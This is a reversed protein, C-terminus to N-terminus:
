ENHGRLLQMQQLRMLVASHLLLATAVPLLSYPSASTPKALSALSANRGACVVLQLDVHVGHPQQAASNTVVSARVVHWASSHQGTVARRLSRPTQSACARANVTHGSLM